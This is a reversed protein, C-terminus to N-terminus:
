KNNFFKEIEISDSTIVTIKLLSDARYYEKENDNIKVMYNIKLESKKKCSICLFLLILFLLIKKM